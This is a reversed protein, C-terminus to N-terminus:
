LLNSTALKFKSAYKYCKRLSLLQQICVKHLMKTSIWHSFHRQKYPDWAVCAYQLILKILSKYFTAKVSVPCSHLNRQLFGKICNGENTIQRIHDYWSLKSATTLGLYKTHEVEQVITDYLTYHYLIPNKKLTIRIFECKQVNFTM